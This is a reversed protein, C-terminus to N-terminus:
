PRSLLEVTELMAKREASSERTWSFWYPKAPARDFWFRGNEGRYAAALWVVTDAGQVPSRLIGRTLRHFTPLSTRVGATEVWGPHMTAHCPSLAGGSEVLWEAILLQMRKCQAYTVVGDFRRGGTWPQGGWRLRQTLMGGSSVWVVRSSPGLRGGLFRTLMTPGVVHTAFTTELGDATMVRKDALAGANHVLMDVREPLAAALRRVDIRSSMDAIVLRAGPVKAVSAVGRAPDRCVMWVEAGAAALLRSTELGIGANAGTVVAVQGVLARGDALGGPAPEAFSRAHRAYGTRDFSFVVTGDLVFGFAKHLAAPIVQTISSPKPDPSSM